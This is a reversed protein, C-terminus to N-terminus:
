GKGMARLNRLSLAVSELPPGPCVDQEVIYWRAGGAEAAAFIAPWDLTGQGVEAFSQTDDAAMDKLHILPCRGAYQRIYAAPDAGGKQIWYTDLEGKVLDPDTASYLIDLAYQGDFRQFEFAHNHYCLQLGRQKCAAGARNLTEALARYDDATRRREEPLYPCVVFESGIAQTFDLAANLDGELADLGTHSGAARLNLDDLLGRLEAASLGGTGAFEVGAYGIEAVERLTGAFDRASENRLTYMQLAIPIQAMM